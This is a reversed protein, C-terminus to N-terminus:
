DISFPSGRKIAEPCIEHLLVHYGKKLEILQKEFIDASVKDTHGSKEFRHYMLVRPVRATLLRCSAYVGMPGLTRVMRSKLNGLLERM